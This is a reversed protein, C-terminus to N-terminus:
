NIKQIENWIENSIDEISRMEDDKVCEIIKWNLETASLLGSKAALKLYETDSEHIDQKEGGTIKNARKERLKITYDIPVNLYITIDARPVEFDSYELSELWSIFKKLEYEESTNPELSSLLKAGQHIINSSVWRDFLIVHKGEKYVEEIEKKYTIYRDVAYFISAAKASVETASGKIEGNLYMRVAASSDSPYNPFSTSYVKYGEQELRKRLMATQTQKGSGDTGEIVIIKGNLNM